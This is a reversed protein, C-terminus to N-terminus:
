SVSSWYFAGSTSGNRAIEFSRTKSRGESDVTVLYTGPQVRAFFYPGDSVADLVTNGRQDAIKVRVNALYEGSGQVAFLLHLNYRGKVENLARASDRGVGGSVYAIGNAARMEQIAQGTEKEVANATTETQSRVIGQAAAPQAMGLVGLLAGALALSMWQEKMMSM